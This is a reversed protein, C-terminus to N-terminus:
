HPRPHLPAQLTDNTWVPTDTNGIDSSDRGRALHQLFFFCSCLFRCACVYPNDAGTHQACMDSPLTACCVCCALNGYMGDCIYPQGAVCLYSKRSKGTRPLRMTFQTVNLLQPM